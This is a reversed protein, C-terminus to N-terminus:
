PCSPQCRVAYFRFASRVAVSTEHNPVSPDTTRIWESGSWKEGDPKCTEQLKKRRRAAQQVADTSQQEAEARLADFRAM